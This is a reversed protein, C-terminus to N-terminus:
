NGNREIACGLCFLAREQVECNEESTLLDM